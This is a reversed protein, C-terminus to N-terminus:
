LGASDGPNGEDELSRTSHGKSLGAVRFASTIECSNGGRRIILNWDLGTWDLGTLLIGAILAV